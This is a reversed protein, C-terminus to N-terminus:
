AFSGKLAEVVKAAIRTEDAHYIHQVITFQGGRSSAPAGFKDAATSAAPGTAAAFKDAVAAAVEPITAVGAGMGEVYTRMLNRGWTMIEKLPGHKPPSEAKLTLGMAEAIIELTYRTEPDQTQDYMGQLYARVTEEGSTKAARYIRQREGPDYWWADRDPYQALAAEEAAKKLAEAEALLQTGSPRVPQVDRIQQNLIALDEQLSWIQNRYQEARDTLGQEDAARAKAELDAINEQLADRQKILGAPEGEGTVSKRIATEYRTVADTAAQIARENEEQKEKYMNVATVGLALAATVGAIALGAMGLPTSLTAMLGGMNSSALNNAAKAATNEDVAVTDVSVAATHMGWMIAMRQYQVGLSMLMGVAQVGMGIYSSIGATAKDLEKWFEKVAERAGSHGAMMTEGWSEMTSATSHLIHNYQMQEINALKYEKCAQKIERGHEVASATARRSSSDVKDNAAETEEGMTGAAAATEGASTGVSKIAEAAGKLTESAKDAATLLVGVEVIEDPM